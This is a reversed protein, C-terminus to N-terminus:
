PDAVSGTLEGSHDFSARSAFEEDGVVASAGEARAGREFLSFRAVLPLKVQAL